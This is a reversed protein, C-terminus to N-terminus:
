STIYVSHREDIKYRKKELVKAVRIQPAAAYEHAASSQTEQGATDGRVWPRGAPRRCLRTMCRGYVYTGVRVGRAAGRWAVGLCAFHTFCLRQLCAQLVPVPGGGAPRGVGM